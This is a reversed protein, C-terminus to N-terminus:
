SICACIPKQLPSAVYGAGTGVGTGTGSGVGTGMGTGHSHAIHQHAELGQRVAPDTISSLDRGPAGYGAALAQQLTATDDQSAQLGHHHHAPGSAHHEEYVVKGQPHERRTQELLDHGPNAAGVGSGTTGPGIGSATPAGSGTNM